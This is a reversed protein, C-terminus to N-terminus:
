RNFEYVYEAESVHLPQLGFSLIDREVDLFNQYRLSDVVVYSVGLQRLLDISEQSPFTDMVPRIRRYQEPASTNFDGGLFPKQHVLTYYVQSQSSEEDFPFQAVAGTDPQAALWADV